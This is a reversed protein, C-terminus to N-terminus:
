DNNVSIISNGIMLDSIFYLDKIHIDSIDINKLIEDNFLNINLNKINEVLFLSFEKEIFAKECYNIHPINENSSYKKFLEKNPNCQLCPCYKCIIFCNDIKSDTSKLFLIDTLINIQIFIGNKLNEIILDSLLYLFSKYKSWDDTKNNFNIIYEEDIDINIYCNKKNENIFNDIDMYIDLWNDNNIIFKMM